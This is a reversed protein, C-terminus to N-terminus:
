AWVPLLLPAAPPRLAPARPRRFGQLLFMLLFIFPPAAVPLSCCPPCPSLALQLHQMTRMTAPLQVLLLLWPAQVAYIPGMSDCLYGCYDPYSPAAACGNYFFLFPQRFSACQFPPRCPPYLALFTCVPVPHFDLRSQELTALIRDLLPFYLFSVIQSTFTCRLSACRPARPLFHGLTASFQMEARLMVPVPRSGFPGLNPM